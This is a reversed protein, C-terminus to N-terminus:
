MVEAVVNNAELEGPVKVMERGGFFCENVYRGQIPVKKGVGMRMWMYEVDIHGADIAWLGDKALDYALITATAGLALLILDNERATAKITAKIADYKTFAGIAPCWIRKISAAGELLDNGIGLRSFRGEVILINKGNFLEQWLSFVKHAMSKDGFGIYPRSIQADGLKQMVLYKKIIPRIWLAARRWHLQNERTYRALSGFVNPICCLCRDMPNELIEILRRQMEQNADEFSMNRGDVLEFEGDGFRAVSCRHEIMYQLTEEVGLINPLWVEPSEIEYYFNDQMMRFQRELANIRKYPNIRDRFSGFAFRFSRISDIINMDKKNGIRTKLGSLNHHAVPNLTTNHGCALSNLLNNTNTLAVPSLGDGWELIRGKNQWYGRLM